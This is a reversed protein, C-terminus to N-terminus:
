HAKKQAEAQSPRIYLPILEKEECFQNNKIKFNALDNLDECTTKVIISSINEIPKDSIINELSALEKIEVMKPASLVNFDRDMECVFYLSSLADIVFNAKKLKSQKFFNNAMLEFSNIKIAKLHKQTLLLAKATAISIRLGTFSGPGVNVALYDLKELPLGGLIEEIKPLLNESHKLSSDLELNKIKEDLNLVIQANIEATNLCLTNM